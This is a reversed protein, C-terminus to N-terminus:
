LQLEWIYIDLNFKTTSLTRFCSIFYKCEVDNWLVSVDCITPILEKTLCLYGCPVSDIDHSSIAQCSVSAPCWCGDKNWIIAYRRNPALGIDSGCIPHQYVSINLYRPSIQFLIFLKMPFICESINDVFRHDYKGPRSTNSHVWKNIRKIFLLAGHVMNNSTAIM